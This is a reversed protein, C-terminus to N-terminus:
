DHIEHEGKKIFMIARDMHDFARRRLGKAEWNGEHQSIDDKAAQVLEHAHKLRGGWHLSADVPEHVSIDKGDDISAKKIERIAADIEGIAQDERWQVKGNFDSPRQLHARADRLDSLAHLYAPHDDASALKPAAFLMGMIIALGVTLTTKM